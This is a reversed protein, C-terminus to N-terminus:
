ALIIETKLKRIRDRLEAAREFNLAKAAKDMEKEWQKITRECVRNGQALIPGLDEYDATQGSETGYGTELSEQVRKVVSQPTIHYLENYQQQVERRREMENIASSMSGTVQDAYMIIMGHLNRAARGSTQILSRHSRLFGEKDADLIAVLSVEPIDLGERLLNIGVLIDFTGLRLNRILETRELTDIDSHLYRVKFDLQQLYSSLDEAMRKTLTTVLVREDRDVVKRLRMILDDVQNSAPLIKVEPDVLGTPRIIQEVVHGSGAHELEYDGPTASVYIIQNAIQEFEDFKLPRNDLASPLRFGYNVLTEKRSRDGRSMGRIQPITVHSEDIILLHNQPLYDMLTPPPDGPQRGTLHRSYNEIGQCHGMQELMELDFMTRQELRQAELLQNQSKLFQLREQLEQRVANMAKSRNEEPTVYHSAPYVTFKIRKEIIRGTLPDFISLSDLENGFFELRLATEEMNAPFIDIVEGRVRFTGRHFDIDNRQYQIDILKHLIEERLIERGVELYLLMGQYAEPSGLGYICSVSAVIIVDERELLAVTAAHRLKDIQENISSDKEIYTDTTPIYAEPQYYDYYSVFYEVKNDPFLDKFEQYLQAALTKNPAIVLTTRGTRAIVQALTFTKGSGTVGLLVQERVGRALGDALSDIAKPQDGQPQFPSHLNFQSPM